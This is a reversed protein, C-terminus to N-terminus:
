SNTIRIPKSSIIAHLLALKRVTRKDPPLRTLRRVLKRARVRVTRHVSAYVGVFLDRAPAGFIVELEFVTLATPFRSAKEYRSVKGGSAVGMLM